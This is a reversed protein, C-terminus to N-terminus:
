RLIEINAVLWPMDYPNTTWCDFTCLEARPVIGLMIKQLHGQWLMYLSVRRFDGYQSGLPGGSMLTQNVGPHM